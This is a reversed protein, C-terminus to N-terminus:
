DKEKPCKILACEVKLQTWADPPDYIIAENHDDFTRNQALSLTILFFFIAFTFFYLMQHGLHLESLPTHLSLFSLLTVTWPCLNGDLQTGAPRQPSRTHVAVIHTEFDIQFHPRDIVRESFLLEFSGSFVELGDTWESSLPNLEATETCMALVSNLSSKALAHVATHV